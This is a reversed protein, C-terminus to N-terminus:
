VSFDDGLQIPAPASATAPTEPEAPEGLAFLATMAVAETEKVLRMHRNDLLLWDGDVQAAVVAHDEDSNGDRVVVLRLDAAAMGSERLAVYKAIAYDECDGAGSAFTTLPSAWYEAVGYQLNDAVPRIALNVARNVEGIRARGDRARAAEVIGLFQAAPAPCGQPNSRCMALMQAEIRLLPQLNRWRASYQNEGAGLGFPGACRAAGAGGIACRQRARRQGTCLVRRNGFGRCGAGVRSFLGDVDGRASTKAPKDRHRDRRVDRDIM